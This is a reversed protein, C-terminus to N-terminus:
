YEQLILTVNNPLKKAYFIANQIPNVQMFRIDNATRRYTSRKYGHEHLWTKAQPVTWYHRNFLITQLSNRPIQRSVATAQTITPMDICKFVNELSLTLIDVERMLEIMKTQKTQDYTFPRHSINYQTKSNDLRLVGSPDLKELQKPVSVKSTSRACSLHSEEAQKTEEQLSDIDYLDNEIDHLDHEFIYWDNSDTFTTDHEYHNDDLYQIDM